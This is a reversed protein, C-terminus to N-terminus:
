QDGVDYDITHNLSPQQSNWGALIPFFAHLLRTGRQSAPGSIAQM